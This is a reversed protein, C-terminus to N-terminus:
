GLIRITRRKDVLTRRETNPTRHKAPRFMENQEANLYRLATRPVPYRDRAGAPAPPRCPSGSAIRESLPAGKALTCAKCPNLRNDPKPIRNPVLDAPPM